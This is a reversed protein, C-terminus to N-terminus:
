RPDPPRLVSLYQEWPGVESKYQWAFAKSIQAIHNFDHVVWTALLHGLTVPGLAPHLGPRALDADTLHLARLANLGAARENGFIALLEPVTHRLLDAHGNRDFPDFPRRDAHELITRMRPLWDTREAFILHAVVEKASWTGPGYNPTTWRDDLGGLLAHLVAPTRALMTLSSALTCRM